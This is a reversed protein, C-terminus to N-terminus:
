LGTDYIVSDIQKLEYESPLMSIKRQMMEIDFITDKKIAYRIVRKASPYCEEILALWEENRPVMIVFGSPKNIVLERDPKGAFFGFCGVFAFASVPNALDTVYIKGMVNQLCSYIMTEQWGAFLEKVKSTDKIEYVLTIM